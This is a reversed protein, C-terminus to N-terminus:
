PRRGLLRDAYALGDPDFIVRYSTLFWEALLSV